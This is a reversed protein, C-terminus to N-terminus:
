SLESKYKQLGRPLRAVNDMTRQWFSLEKKKLFTQIM